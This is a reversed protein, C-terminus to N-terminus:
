NTLFDGFYFDNMDFDGTQANVVLAFTVVKNENNPMVIRLAVNIRDTSVIRVTITTVGPLTALDKKIANEIIVRGYSTLPTSKLTRETLSNFQQIPDAIFTNGWYSLDQDTTQRPNQTDAEVNGGFMRIYIDNSISETVALDNGLMTFDGGSGSEVLAIDWQLLAM